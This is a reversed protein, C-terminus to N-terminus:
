CLVFGRAPCTGCGIVFRDYPAQASFFHMRGQYIPLAGACRTRTMGIVAVKEMGGLGDARLRMCKQVEPELRPFREGHAEFDCRDLGVVFPACYKASTLGHSYPEDMVAVGDPASFGRYPFLSGGESGVPAWQAATAKQGANEPRGAALRTM